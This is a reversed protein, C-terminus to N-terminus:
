ELGGRSMFHRSYSADLNNVDLLMFVDAVGFDADWCAEGCAKAGLRIYAKLLPPMRAAVVEDPYPTIPLGNKPTVRLDADCFAHIRLRNMIATAMLGNDNQMDISACGFLFDIKHKKIYAALGSWLVAIAAGSRHRADVCTRGVELKRGQLQKVPNMSFETESYFSGVALAGQDTLLRTSAILQGSRNDRVVLHHCHQDFRDQDLSDSTNLDAGLEEAFIRYRLALSEQITQNDKALEVSLRGTKAPKLIASM